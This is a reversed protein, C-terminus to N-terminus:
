IGLTSRTLFIKKDPLDISWRTFLTMRRKLQDQIGTRSDDECLSCHGLARFMVRASPLIDEISQTRVICIRPHIYIRETEAM